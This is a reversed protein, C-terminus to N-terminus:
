KMGWRDKYIASITTAGFARHNTLLMIVEQKEDDWVEIKRLVGSCKKQSYFGDYEILQETLINRRQPVSREEVITFAASSKQWTVFYVGDDIWRSFM